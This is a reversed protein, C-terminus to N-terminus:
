KKKRKAKKRQKLHKKWRGGIKKEHILWYTLMVAPKDLTDEPIFTANLDHGSYFIKVPLVVLYSGCDM